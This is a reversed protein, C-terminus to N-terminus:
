GTSTFGEALVMRDAGWAALSTGAALWLTAVAWAFRWSKGALFQHRGM